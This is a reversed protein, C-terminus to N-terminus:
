GRGHPETWNVEPGKPVIRTPNLHPHTMFYHRKIHDFNTTDGFGPTQYLDRAYPWLHDYDVLRQRNCKFHTVYVADFRVLTVFLRIDAETLRDGVLYRHNALHADLVDLRNFLADFSAEYAPQTTAFGTKYVGNNVAHFNAESVDLIEERLEAPFLDADTRQFATFETHMQLTIEPYDNTVISDTSRDWVCPVTVRGAFDPDSVAYAESLYSFGHVPDAGHADGDTFRWGLDDRIPDVVSMTIVEDLGLLQRVIICRHAWPCALSVWLHYRGPEAQHGTSGDASIKGTFHNPQRKFSGDSTMESRLSGAATSTM